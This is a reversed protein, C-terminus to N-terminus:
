FLSTEVSSSFEAFLPGKNANCLNNTIKHWGSVSRSFFIHNGKSMWCHVKESFPTPPQTKWGPFSINLEFTVSSTFKCTNGTHDSTNFVDAQM